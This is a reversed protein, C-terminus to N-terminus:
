KFLVNKALWKDIEKIVRTLEEIKHLQDSDSDPRTLFVVERFFKQLNVLTDLLDKPNLSKSPSSPLFITKLGVPNPPLFKLTWLEKM